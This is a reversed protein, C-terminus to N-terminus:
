QNKMGIGLGNKKKVKISPNVCEQSLIKGRDKMNCKTEIIYKEM